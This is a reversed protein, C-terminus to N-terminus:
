EKPFGHGTRTAPFHEATLSDEDSAPNKPAEDSSRFSRKTGAAPGDSNAFVASVVKTGTWFRLRFGGMNLVSVVMVGSTWASISRRASSSRRASTLSRWAFIEFRPSPKGVMPGDGSAASTANTATPSSVAASTSAVPADNGPAPSSPSYVMVSMASSRAANTSADASAALRAAAADTTRLTEVEIMGGSDGVGGPRASAKAAFAATAGGATVGSAGGSVAIEPTAAAAAAALFFFFSM